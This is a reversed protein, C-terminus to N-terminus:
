MEEQLSQLANSYDDLFALYNQILGQLELVESVKEQVSSQSICDAPLSAILQTVALFGEFIMKEQNAQLLAVQLLHGLVDSQGKLSSLREVLRSKLYGKTAVINEM